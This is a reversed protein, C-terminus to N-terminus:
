CYALDFYVRGSRIKEQYNEAPSKWEGKTVKELLQLNSQYLMEQYKRYNEDRVKKCKEYLERDKRNREKIAEEQSMREQEQYWRNFEREEAEKM